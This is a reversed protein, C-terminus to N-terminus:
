YVSVQSYETAEIEPYGNYQKILGTVKITKGNFQELSVSSFNSGNPIYVVFGNQYDQKEDIFKTGASTEYTYGVNFEVCDNEGYHNRVTEPTYCGNENKDSPPPPSERQAVVSTGESSPLGNRHSNWVVYGLAGAIVLFTAGVILIASAKEDSKM